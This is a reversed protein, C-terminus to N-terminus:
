NSTSMSRVTGRGVKEPGSGGLDTFKDADDPDIYSTVDQHGQSTAIDVIDEKDSVVEDANSIVETAVKRFQNIESQVHADSLINIDRALTLQAACFDQHADCLKEGFQLAKKAVFAAQQDGEATAKELYEMAAIAEEKTGAKDVEGLTYQLLELADMSQKVEEDGESATELVFNHYSGMTSTAVDEIDAGSEASKMSWQASASDTTYDATSEGIEEALQIIAQGIANQIETIDSFVDALEEAVERLKRKVSEALAGATEAAAAKKDRMKKAVTKVGKKLAAGAVTRGARKLAFPVAVAFLPFWVSLTMIGICLAIIALKVDTRAMLHSYKKLIAGLIKGITKIIKMFVSGLKKCIALVKSQEPNKGGVIRLIVKGGAAMKQDLWKQFRMGKGIAQMVIRNGLVTAKFMLKDKVGPKKKPAKESPEESAEESTEESTEEENKKGFLEELLQRGHPSSAMKMEHFTSREWIKLAETITIKNRELDEFLAGFTRTKTPKSAKGEFLFIPSEDLERDPITPVNFKNSYRRWNEMILKMESM